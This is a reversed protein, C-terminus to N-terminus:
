KDAEMRVSVANAFVKKGHKFTLAQTSTTPGEM